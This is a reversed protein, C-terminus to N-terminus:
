CCSTQEPEITWTPEPCCNTLPFTPWIGGKVKGLESDGLDAITKKNLALKKEFKKLKM